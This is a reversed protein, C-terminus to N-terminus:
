ITITILNYIKEKSKIIIEHHKCITEPLKNLTWKSNSHIKALIIITPPIEM